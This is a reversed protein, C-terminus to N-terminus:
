FGWNIYLRATPRQQSSDFPDQQATRRSMEFAHTCASLCVSPTSKLWSSSSGSSVDLHFDLQIDLNFFLLITIQVNEILPSPPLLCPSTQHAYSSILLHPCSILLLPSLPRPRPTAKSTPLQLAPALVWRSTGPLSVAPPNGIWTDWCHPLALIECYGLGVSICGTM